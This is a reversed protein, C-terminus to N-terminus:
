DKWVKLTGWNPGIEGDSLMPVDTEISMMVDRLVKMEERMANKPCTFDIEDYVTVVLRAKRKPHGEWRVLVEKTVDAGSGQCLYNLLKYEFTMDRGFKESYKPPECYYLRGGWTRIPRGEKALAKLQKDLEGISPIARNLAAQILKATPREEESLKMSQMLGTIGQGYVRGFVTTKASDRDFSDRLGASVLAREEEARALEHIDYHPDNLFGQMVEGDEFHGFLRLEQQNFDRRGWLHGKDPLVYKRMFPLEPAKLFAPHVYGATIAKKWKKPINLLNPKSCIIRGSRAGKTDDRDGKPSRVQSWDGHLLGDSQALDIWPEMFMSISTSMQGRYTLVQYVQQDKFKDITLTKKSVSLQGKPTRALESVAGKSLLAEALQRDSDINIDGLRRRLWVDAKEVGQKMLPLDRELGRVDVRMGQRANRLLIPMLKRERDYADGMGADIVLPYLYNFLGLTRTLDGKHYPKVIQYPCRCIYAGATSPKQRAEPVNAIIWEYMRDQEEPPIGLLMEALPKLALTPSHPNNLFALFMTDHYREWTPLKLEWHTEAVDGDFAFNQALIPYKSAYVRKLEGRAENETCNNGAAKSGDGHGWAMLHYQSENPFKIALSVPKPPYHPRAEIGRTEFDVVVCEPAKM